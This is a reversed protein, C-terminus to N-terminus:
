KKSGRTAWGSGWVEKVDYMRALQVMQKIKEMQYTYFSFGIFEYNKSLKKEYESMSPYVLIEVGQYNETIFRISTAPIYADLWNFLGWRREPLNM